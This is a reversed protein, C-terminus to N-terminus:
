LLLPLAQCACVVLCGHPWNQQNKARIQLKALPIKLKWRKTLQPMEIFNHRLQPNPNLNVTNASRSPFFALTGMEVSSTFQAVPQQASHDTKHWYIQTCEKYGHAELVEVFMATQKPTHWLTMFLGWAAAANQAAYQKLILALGEKTWAIDWGELTIAYPTDAIM